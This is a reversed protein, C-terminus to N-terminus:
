IALDSGAQFTHDGFLDEARSQLCRLCQLAVIVGLALVIKSLPAASLGVVVGTEPVLGAAGPVGCLRVM